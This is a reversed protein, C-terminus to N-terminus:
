LHGRSFIVAAVIIMGYTDICVESGSVLVDLEETARGRIVRAIMITLAIGEESTPTILSRELM